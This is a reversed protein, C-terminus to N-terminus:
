HNALFTQVNKFHLKTVKHFEGAGHLSLFRRMAPPVPGGSGRPLDLAWDSSLGELDQLFRDRALVSAAAVALHQEARPVEVVELDQNWSRLRASVPCSPAFRDVVITCFSTRSHLAQLCEFHMQTLLRNVNRGAEAWALNYQEPLLSREEFEAHERIWGALARIRTDDITKSDAVRTRQLEEVLAPSVAVGAVVLSGFTDGKGAEDSGISETAPPLTASAAGEPGSAKEKKPPAAEKLGLYQVQWAEANRGQVVLKGSRYLSVVVGEGRAQFDAHQLEHFEFGADKLAASLARGEKPNLHFVLTATSSM